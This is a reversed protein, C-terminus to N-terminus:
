ALNPNANNQERKLVERAYAVRSTWKNDKVGQKYEELMEPSMNFIIDELQKLEQQYNAEKLKEYESARVKNEIEKIRNEHFINENQLYEIQTKNDAIKKYLKNVDESGLGVSNFLAAQVFNSLNFDQKEKKIKKLLEITDDSLYITKAM